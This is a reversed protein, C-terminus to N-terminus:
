QEEMPVKHDKIYEGWWYPDKKIYPEAEEFRGEIVYRAYYYAYYPDKMIYPEAEKWRGKIVNKAYEYAYGTDKMIYPEAEEFRGEIVYRAYFYAYYPDKMIYPEVEKWRGKIINKAYYYAYEPDQMIYPEAEKWRNKIVDTAYYYAYEPDKKIYPEAEKFRGKIINKAYEYAYKSDKMIYPEVEEFRGKIINKAYYYAYEPNIKILNELNKDRTKLCKIYINAADRSKLIFDYKEDDNDFIKFPFLLGDTSGNIEKRLITKIQPYREIFIDRVNNNKRDAFESKQYDPNNGIYFLYLEDRTLIYNLIGNNSYKKYYSDNNLYTTCLKMDPDKTDRRLSMSGEYNLPQYIILDNGKYKFKGNGLKVQEEM